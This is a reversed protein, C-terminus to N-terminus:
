VNDSNFKVMCRLTQTEFSKSEKDQVEGQTELHRKWHHHVSEGAHEAEKALSRGNKEVWQPVHELIIHFKPTIPFSTSSNLSLLAARLQAVLFRWNPDLKLGFLGQNFQKIKFFVDLYLCRIPDGQVLPVLQELNALMKRIQPGQYNREKGQYSHAKIGFLDYLVAKIEPWSARELHNILDNTALFLHLACPPCKDLVSTDFTDGVGEVLVHGTVSKFERTFETKEVGERLDLWSAYNMNLSGFTRLGVEADEWASVGGVKRRELPCYLCPNSSGCGMLGFCPLAPTFLINKIASVM